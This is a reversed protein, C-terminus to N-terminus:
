LTPVGQKILLKKLNRFCPKLPIGRQNNIGNKHLSQDTLKGIM